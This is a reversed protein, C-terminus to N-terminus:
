KTVEDRVGAAQDLLTKVSIATAEAKKFPEDFCKVLQAESARASGKGGSRAMDKFGTRAGAIVAQANLARKPGKDGVEFLIKLLAPFSKDVASKM